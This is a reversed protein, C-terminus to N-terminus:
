AREKEMLVRFEDEPMPRYFFFGQVCRIGARKLMDIQDSREVGECVVTLGIADAMSAISEIIRMSRDSLGEEDLFRADLKLVDIPLDKLVNLSSYGSGFDDMAVAFGASELADVAHRMEEISEIAMTETLEIELDGRSVGHGDAIRCLTEVFDSDFLHIRSMNVSVTPGGEGCDALERKFRCVQDFVAFDVDRIFRNREFLPIFDGPPRLSGDPLRWRVLAEAGVVGGTCIDVKPQYFAEFEGNELAPEMSEELEKEYRIREMSRDDFFGVDEAAAKAEKRAIDACDIIADLAAGQECGAHNVGFALRVGKGPLERENFSIECARAIRRLRAAMRDAGEWWLVLVFVDSGERVAIEGAGADRALEDAVLRILRNGEQFGFRDNYSKIDCIDCTVVARDESRTLQGREKLYALNRLSTLGDDYAVHRIHELYRKRSRSLLLNSAVLCVIVLACLLLTLALVVYGNQMLLSVPVSSVLYWTDEEDAHPVDVPLFCAFRDTRGDYLQGVWVDGEAMTSRVDDVVAPGNRDNDIFDFVNGATKFNDIHYSSTIIDGSGDVLYTYGNENFFPVSFPEYLDEVRKSAVLLSEPSGNRCVPAVFAVVKRGTVQSYLPASIFTRGGLGYRVLDDELRYEADGDLFSGDRDAVYVADYGYEDCLGDLYASVTEESLDGNEDLDVSLVRALNSVGSLSEDVEAEFQGAANVTLNFVYNGNDAYLLDRVCLYAGCSLAICVVVLAAKALTSVTSSAREVASLQVGRWRSM